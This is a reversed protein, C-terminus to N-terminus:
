SQLFRAILKLGATASKEPHFQCGFCNGNAIAATLSHGGYNCEAVIDEPRQPRVVLSHVFYFAEGPPTAELPTESWNGKTAPHIPAWGIHPVNLPKGETDTSPISEVRGPVIGLGPTTGFEESEDLMLQMGLCIGLFPRGSAAFERLAPVMRRQRLQQMAKGFAGVGPLVIRDATPIQEPRTVREVKAGLHELARQVNFLNGAGYDVISVVGNM